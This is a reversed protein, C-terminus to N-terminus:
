KKAKDDVLVAYITEDSYGFERMRKVLITVVITISRVIFAAPMSGGPNYSRAVSKTISEILEDMTLKEKECVRVPM